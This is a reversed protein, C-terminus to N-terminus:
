NGEKETTGYTMDREARETFTDAPFETVYAVADAGVKVGGRGFVYRPAGGPEPTTTYLFDPHNRIIDPTESM